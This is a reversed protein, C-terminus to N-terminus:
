IPIRTPTPRPSCGASGSRAAGQHDQLRDQRGRRPEEPRPVLARHAAHGGHLRGHRRPAQRHIVQTRGVHDDPDRGPHRAARVSGQRRGQTQSQVLVAAGGSHPGGEERDAHGADGAAPRGAHHLRAQGRARAKEAHRPHRRRHRQRRWQHRGGQGQPGRGQQHRLGQTRLSGATIAPCATRSNMPLSAFITSAPTRSQSPSRPIPSAPSRWSTTPSRRSRKRRARFACRRRAHLVQGHAPRPGEEGSHDLGLQRDPGGVVHSNQGAGRQQRYRRGHSRVRMRRGARTKFPANNGGRKASSASRHPLSQKAFPSITPPGVSKPLATGSGDQDAIRFM